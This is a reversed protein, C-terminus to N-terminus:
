MIGRTESLNTVFLVGSNPQDLHLVENLKTTIAETKETETIILVVDKEPEIEMRFVKKTEYKGAGHAHIVTGGQAGVSQAADMVTEAEGKKVIVFIAQHMSNMEETEENEDSVSYTGIVEELPMRFAIGKNKKNMQKKEVIYDIAEKAITTSAVFMVIEKKIQDLGLMRLIGQKATGQGLFVTGTVVGKESALKMCDDGESANVICCVVDVNSIKNTQMKIRGCDSESDAKKTYHIFLFLDPRICKYLILIILSLM